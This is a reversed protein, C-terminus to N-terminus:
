VIEYKKPFLVNRPLNKLISKEPTPFINPFLTGLITIREQASQGKYFFPEMLEKFESSNNGAAAFMIFFAYGFAFFFRKKQM